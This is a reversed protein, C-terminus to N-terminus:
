DMGQSNLYSFIDAMSHVELFVCVEGVHPHTPLWGKPYAMSGGVWSLGAPVPQSSNKFDEVTPICKMGLYHYLYLLVMKQAIEPLPM